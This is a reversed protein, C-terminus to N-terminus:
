TGISRYDVVEYHAREPPPTVKERWRPSTL